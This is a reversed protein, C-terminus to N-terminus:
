VIVEYIERSGMVTNENLHAFLRATEPDPEVYVGRELKYYEDLSEVELNWVVTDFRGTMDVYIRGTTNGMSILIGNIAKLDEVIEPAKGRRAHWVQHMMHM